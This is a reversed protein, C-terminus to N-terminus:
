TGAHHCGSSKGSEGSAKMKDKDSISLQWKWSSGEASEVATFEVGCYDM